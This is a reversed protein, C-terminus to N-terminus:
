EWKSDLDLCYANNSDPFYICDPEHETFYEFFSKKFTPRKILEIVKRTYVIRQKGRKNNITRVIAYGNDVFVRTFKDLPVVSKRTEKEQSFRANYREYKVYKMWRLYRNWYKTEPQRIFHRWEQPYEKAILEFLEEITIIGDQCIEQQAKDYAIQQLEKAAEIGAPGGEYLAIALQQERTLQPIQQQLQKECEIFYRRVQRGKDSRQLMAIEKAMDIKLAYDGIEKKAGNHVVTSKQVSTFDVNEEFGYSLMRDFWKSFREKSELAEHLDRASVLLKGNENRVNILEMNKMYIVREHGYLSPPM